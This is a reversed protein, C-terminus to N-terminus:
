MLVQSAEVEAGHDLCLRCISFFGVEDFRVLISSLQSAFQIAILLFDLRILGAGGVWGMSNASTLNPIEEIENRSPL